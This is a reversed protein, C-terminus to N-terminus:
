KKKDFLLQEMENRRIERMEDAWLQFNSVALIVGHIEEAMQKQSPQFKKFANPILENNHVKTNNEDISKKAEEYFEEYTYGEKKLFSGVLQEFLSCFEQHLEEQKFTYEEIDPNFAKIALKEFAQMKKFDETLNADFLDFLYESVKEVITQSAIFERYLEAESKKKISNNNNNNKRQKPLKLVVEVDQYNNNNSDKEEKKKMPTRENEVEEAAELILKTFM